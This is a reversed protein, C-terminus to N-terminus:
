ALNQPPSPQEARRRTPIYEVSPQRRVPQPFLSMLQLFEPPMDSRVKLGLKQAVDVTIPFDHTWEPHSYRAPVIGFMYVLRELDQPPLTLEYLFIAVNVAIIAWTMVPARRHPITDRIPIM